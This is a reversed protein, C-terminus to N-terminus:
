GNISILHSFHFFWTYNHTICTINELKCTVWKVNPLECLYIRTFVTYAYISVHMFTYMTYAGIALKTKIALTLVNAKSWILFPWWNLLGFIFSICILSKKLCEKVCIADLKHSHIVNQLIIIKSCMFFFSHKM